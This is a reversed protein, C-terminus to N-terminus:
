MGKKTMCRWHGKSAYELHPSLTHHAQATPLDCQATKSRRCWADESEVKDRHPLSSYSHCESGKGCVGGQQHLVVRCMCRLFSPVRALVRSSVEEIVDAGSQPGCHTEKSGPWSCIGEKGAVWKERCHKAAVSLLCLPLWGTACLAHAAGATLLRQGSLAYKADQLPV